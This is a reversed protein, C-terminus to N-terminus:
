PHAKCLARPHRYFHVSTVSHCVCSTACLTCPRRGAAPMVIAHLAITRMGAPLLMVAARAVPLFSLRRAEHWTDPQRRWGIEHAACVRDESSSVEDPIGTKSWRAIMIDWDGAFRWWFLPQCYSQVQYSWSNSQLIAVSYTACPPPPSSRSDNGPLLLMGVVCWLGSASTSTQGQNGICHAPQMCAPAHM